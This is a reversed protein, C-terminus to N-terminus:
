GASDRVAFMLQPASPSSPLTTAQGGFYGGAAAAIQLVMGLRLNM